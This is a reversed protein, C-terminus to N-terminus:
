KLNKAAHGSAVLENNALVAEDDAQKTALASLSYAEDIREFQIRYVLDKVRPETCQALDQKADGHEQIVGAASQPFNGDSHRALEYALVANAYRTLRKRTGPSLKAIDIQTAQNLETTDSM